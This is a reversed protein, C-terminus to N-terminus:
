ALLVIAPWTLGLICCFALFMLSLRSPSRAVVACMLCWPVIFLPGALAFGINSRVFFILLVTVLLGLMAVCTLQWRLPKLQREVIEQLQGM